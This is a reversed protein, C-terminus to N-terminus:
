IKVGELFKLGEFFTSIHDFSTFWGTVGTVWKVGTVRKGNIDKRDKSVKSKKSVFSHRVQPAHALEIHRLMKSVQAEESKRLSRLEAYPLKLKTPFFM